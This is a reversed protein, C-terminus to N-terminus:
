GAEHSDPPPTHELMNGTLRPRPPAQRRARPAGRRHGGVPHPAPPHAARGRVAAGGLQLHAPGRRDARRGPRRGPARRAGAGAQGAATPADAIVKAAGQTQLIVSKGNGGLNYTVRHDRHRARGGHASTIGVSAVEPDSYTIRPVGDYDIPTVDLGASGSPSWSARPSASTRSSRARPHPRRGRLDDPRQDPLVRGRDRLRPGHGGRGGRLRARGLGPRPRRRRADARRRADQRGGAHRHRGDATDKVGEFRAGLQYAIGRRRFARELLKSSSEDEPPLLHPLMEVITVEAGFSRWVSAFEVGIVGGGLIVVSSPCGTSRSRTTAPSSGSATSRWGPCAAAAGLRHGAGRARGRLGHRRGPGRDALGPPRRGRRHRHQPERDHEEPGELAPRGGQGQLRQGRGHRHRRLPGARRVDRGRRAPRRDGGRAAAGQDPHLGPAPLHRRGQGERHAGVRKGLEAASLACAYGGSGGGLIVIDYRDSSDAM